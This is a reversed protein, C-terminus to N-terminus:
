VGGLGRRISPSYATSIYLRLEGDIILLASVNLFFDLIQEFTIIEFPVKPNTMSLSLSTDLSNILSNMSEESDSLIVIGPSQALLISRIVGVIILPHHHTNVYKIKYKM